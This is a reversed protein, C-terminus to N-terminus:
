HEKTYGKCNVRILESPLALACHTILNLERSDLTSAPKFTAATENSSSSRQSASFFLDIYKYLM